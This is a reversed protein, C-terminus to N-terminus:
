YFQVVKLETLPEEFLTKKVRFRYLNSVGAVPQKDVFKYHADIVTDNYLNYIIVDERTVNILYKEGEYSRTPVVEKFLKSTYDNIGPTETLAFSGKSHFWYYDGGDFVRVMEGEYLLPLTDNIDEVMINKEAETEEALKRFEDLFPVVAEVSNGAMLKDNPTNKQIYLRLYDRAGLKDLLFKNYAAALPYTFSPDNQVFSSDESLSAVDLMGSKQLFLGLKTVLGSSRPSIGGVAAAFGKEFLKPGTLKMKSLKIRILQEALGNLNYPTSTIIEDWAPLFAGKGEIGSFEGVNKENLAVIYVLKNKRLLEKEEETFGLLKMIGGLTRGLQFGSYSNFHKKERVYFDIYETEYKTWYLTLYKSPAVLKFNEFYFYKKYGNGPITVEVRFFNQPLNEIKHLLEIEGKMILNRLKLPIEDGALIKTTVDTYSIHFRGAKQKSSEDAYHVLAPPDQVLKKMFGDVFQERTPQASLMTFTFLVFIAIRITLRM